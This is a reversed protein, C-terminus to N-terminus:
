ASVRRPILPPADPIADRDVGVGVLQAIRQVDWIVHDQATRRYDEMQEVVADMRKRCDDHASLNEARMTRVEAEAHEARQLASAAQALAATMQALAAASLTSAGTIAEGETEVEVKKTAARMSRLTPVMFLVTAIGGGGGLVGVISVLTSAEM